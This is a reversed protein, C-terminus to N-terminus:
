ELCVTHHLCKQIYEEYYNQEEAIRVRSTNYSKMILVASTAGFTGLLTSADSNVFSFISGIILILYAALKSTTLYIDMSFKM